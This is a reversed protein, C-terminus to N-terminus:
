GVWIWFYGSGFPALRFGVRTDSHGPRIYKTDDDNMLLKFDNERMKRGRATERRKGWMELVGKRKRERM